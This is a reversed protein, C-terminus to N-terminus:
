SLGMVVNNPEATERWRQKIYIETTTKNAHGILQQIDEIPQKAIYYMDTAGKGKLDRYGFSEMETIGRAKRKENATAISRRLMSSIGDYSYHDGKLTGVLPARLQRVKADRRPLLQDLLPSFGIKMQMGTKNQRFKLFRREGETAIVTDDWLIIDSEPRQLTRYTLEMLLREARTAVAYVERYEDHTVYRLRKPEPNRKIGSAQMCPNIMLGPAHKNRLLWSFCASLCARERNGQTARKAEASVNLYDQVMDPTVDTPTLPPAFFVRLPGPKKDTGVIAARYDDCTRQALKIGKVQSALAVRRECDILFQDLWYVLSGFLSDPDNFHRAKRNAEVKDTGLREWTGGRHVYYFAGHKAYVRPELDNAPNKRRRGMTAM